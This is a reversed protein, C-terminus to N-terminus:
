RGQILERWSTRKVKTANKPPGSASMFTVGGNTDVEMVNPTSGIVVLNVGAALANIMMSNIVAGGYIDIAYLWSRGGPDCATPSPINSAIGIFNSGQVMNVNVREGPTLLDAYWGLASGSWSVPTAADLVRVNGTAATAGATEVFTKKVMGSANRLNGLSLGDLKDKFVYISQANKDGVDPQGLYRGTAVTVVPFKSAGLASLIPTTTIPQVVNGPAPGVTQAMRSATAGATAAVTDDFDIRWVNGKMDGSYMRLATNNTEDEVWAALKGLNSPSTTTGAPTSGSTFTSIKNYTGKQAGTIADRVYVHGNGDGTGTHNNYGSTFAVIWEGTKNKTVVPNGYTLGLTPLDAATLEWLVKVQSPDPDTIDLAYYGRGGAGLGGILVTHWKATAPNYVDSVVPSGDVMYTHNASYNEDARRHMLPMAMTPVYAWLEAGTKADLAHLMGDNAAVYVVPRRGPTAVPTAQPSLSAKFDAYSQGGTPADTYTFKPTQVYVPSANVIDGLPTTPRSRFVRAGPVGNGLSNEMGSRGRTYGVVNDLNNANAVQTADLTACQSLKSGTPACMNSFHTAYGHAALNASTFDLRANTVPNRFFITRADSADAVQSKLQANAEWKLDLTVANSPSVKLEYGKINGEWLVTTYEGIFMFNDGTVPQLASTAAAAAVGVKKDISELADTLGNVLQNPDGASYFRGRGNVAAHWLDDARATDSAWPDPWARTGAKLEAFSGTAATLYDPRYTLQGALGLGLSYTVMHQHTAKDDGSPVVVDACVDQGPVSGICGASGPTGERLDTTYFYHAIDALTNSVGAGGTVWSGSLTRGDDRLPRAIAADADNNGLLTGNLKKPAYGSVVSGESNTNWYGDTTLMAYNRQCAYQIPDAVGAPLGAGTLTKGAYYRGIKELAPRLPTYGNPSEGYLRSYFNARQTGVFQEVPLFNGSTNLSGDSIASYGVRFRSGDIAAMARGVSSKMVNMRTRYYTFWNAYNQREALPLTTVVVWKALYANWATNVKTTTNAAALNPACQIAATLSVPTSYYYKSTGTSGVTHRTSDTSLQSLDSLNSSSGSSNFGDSKASTFTAAPYSTGDAKLPPLYTTAPNYFIRNVGHYGHCHNRFDGDDPLYDWGMSGSDDMIFMLNAKVDVASAKGLPTSSIDAVQAQAQLSLSCALMACVAFRTLPHKVNTPRM